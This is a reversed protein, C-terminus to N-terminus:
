GHNLMVSRDVQVGSPQRASRVYSASRAAAPEVKLVELTPLSHLGADDRVQVVLRQRWWPLADFCFLSPLSCLPCEMIVTGFVLVFM